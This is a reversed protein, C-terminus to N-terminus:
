NWNNVIFREGKYEFYVFDNCKRRLYIRLEIKLKRHYYRGSRIRGLTMGVERILYRSRLIQEPAQRINIQALPIRIPFWLVFPIILFEGSDDPHPRKPVFMLCFVFVFALAGLFLIIDNLSMFM